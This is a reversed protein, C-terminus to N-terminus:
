YEPRQYDYGARIRRIEDQLGAAQAQGAALGRSVGGRPQGAAGPAAAAAQVEAPTLYGPPSALGVAAEAPMGGPSAPMVPPTYAFAPQVPPTIQPPSPPFRPFAATPPKQEFPNDRVLPESRATQTDAFRATPTGDLPMGAQAYQRKIGELGAQIIEEESQPARRPPGVPAVSRALSPGPRNEYIPMSMQRQEDEVGMLAEEVKRADRDRQDNKM